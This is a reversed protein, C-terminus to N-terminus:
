FFLFFFIAKRGSGGSPAQFGRGRVVASYDDSRWQGGGHRRGGHRRRALLLGWGLKRM